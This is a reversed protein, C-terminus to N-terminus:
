QVFYKFVICVCLRNMLQCSSYVIEENLEYAIM